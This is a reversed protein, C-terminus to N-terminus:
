SSGDDLSGVVTHIGKLSPSILLYMGIPSIAASVRASRAAELNEKFQKYLERMEGNAEM